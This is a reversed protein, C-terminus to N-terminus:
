YSNKITKYMGPRDDPRELYGFKYYFEKVNAAAMLGIFSNNNATKAIFKEIQNMILKGIGKNKYEPLVIVDQIYFYIAGDGIIRGMGIPKDDSFVCISFLDKELAKEVVKDDIFDWGTTDRFLQYEPVKLKRKEITINNM